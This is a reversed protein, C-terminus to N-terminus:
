LEDGARDDGHITSVEREAAYSSLRPSRRSHEALLLVRFSESPRSAAPRM